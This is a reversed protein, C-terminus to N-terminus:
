KKLLDDLKKIPFITLKGGRSVNTIKINNKDSFEKAKAFATIMRKNATLTSSDPPQNGKFHNTNSIPNYNCDVGLLNIDTYGMYVAIQILSYIITFGNFVNECADASFKVKYENKFRAKYHNYVWNFPFIIFNKNEFSIDINDGVFIKTSDNMMWFYEQFNKFAELDQIGYYTPRWETENFGLCIGNASFTDENKLKNLDDICLSPGTGVIFCRRNKKINKMQKLKLYRDNFKNKSNFLLKIRFFLSKIFFYIFHAFRDMIKLNM